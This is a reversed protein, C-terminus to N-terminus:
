KFSYEIGVTFTKLGNTYRTYRVPFAWTALIDDNYDRVPKVFALSIGGNGVLRSSSQCVDCYYGLQKIDTWKRYYRIQYVETGRAWTGGFHTSVRVHTLNLVDLRIEPSVLWLRKQFREGESIEQSDLTTRSIGMGLGLRSLGSRTAFPRYIMGGGFSLHKGPYDTNGKAFGGQFTVSLRNTEKDQAMAPLAM